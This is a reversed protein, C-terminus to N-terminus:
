ATRDEVALGGVHEVLLVDRDESGGAHLARACLPKRRMMSAARGTLNFAERHGGRRAFLLLCRLTGFIEDIAYRSQVLVQVALM